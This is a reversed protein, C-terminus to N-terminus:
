RVMGLYEVRNRGNAKARYLAKDAVSLALEPSELCADHATTVGLSITVFESCESREHAIKLGYIASRMRDAITVAGDKNTGELVVIFEEGGYRAVTDSARNLASSLATAVAKLCRDGAIHGYFDNYSKFYDIDIMVLSLDNRARKASKFKQLIIENFYRRNNIGTLSDILSAKLAENREHELENVLALIREEKENLQKFILNLPNQVNVLLISKYIFYFSAAKLLHGIVNLLGYNDTYLTFSLESLITIIISASLFRRIRENEIRGNTNALLLSVGLLACIAYESYIKFRTQGQGPIYCAPFIEYHFVTALAISFLVFYIFFTIYYGPMKNKKIRTLFILITAAELTRACIWLQNAFYKDPEFINMGQYSLTHLFDILGVFLYGIGLLSFSNKDKDYTFTSLIFVSGSIVVSFLEIFSHFLLYNKISILYLAILALTSGIVFLTRHLIDGKDENSASYLM